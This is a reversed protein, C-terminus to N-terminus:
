GGTVSMPKRNESPLLRSVHGGIAGQIVSPRGSQCPNTFSSHLPSSPRHDSKRQLILSSWDM